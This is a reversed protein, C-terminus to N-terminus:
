KEDGKTKVVELTKNIEDLGPNKPQRLPLKGMLGMKVAMPLDKIATIGRTKRILVVPNVDGSEKIAEEFAEYERDGRYAGKQALALRKLPEIADQFVDIDQPCVETCRYCSTCHFIGNNVITSVREGEDRPDLARMALKVYAAPGSFNELGVLEVAPCASTCLGCEICDGLKFAPIMEEHTINEPFGPYPTKRVLRPNLREFAKEFETRDVILDRILPFNDLPEITMKPQVPEWCALMPVGNVKVGCCGCRNVGCYSRYGFEVGLEDAIYRLAGLVRMRKQYPVVYTEYRPEEDVSPDFRFLRVEVTTEAEAEKM